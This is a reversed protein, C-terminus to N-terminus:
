IKSYPVKLDIVMGDFACVVHMPERRRKRANLWKEIEDHSMEHTFGTFYGLGGSQLYNQCAEFAQTHSFHSIHPYSRLADIVLWKTNLMLEHARPPIASVDSVYTFDGFRFGLCYYPLGGEIKGHEVDFPIIQLEDIKFPLPGKEDSQILHFRVQAVEGSGTANKTNTLYPFARDVVNFTDQNLYVDVADQAAFRGGTFQRLDDLGMM